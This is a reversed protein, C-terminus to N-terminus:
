GKLEAWEIVDVGLLLGSLCPTKLPGLGKGIYLYRAMPIPPISSSAMAIFIM